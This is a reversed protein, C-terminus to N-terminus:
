PERFEESRNERGRMLVFAPKGRDVPVSEHFIGDMNEMALMQSMPEDRPIREDAAGSGDGRFTIPPYKGFFPSLDRTRHQGGRTAERGPAHGPKRDDKGRLVYFAGKRSNTHCANGSSGDRTIGGRMPFLPYFRFFPSLFLFIWNNCVTVKM